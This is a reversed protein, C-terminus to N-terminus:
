AGHAPEMEARTQDAAGRVRSGNVNESVYRRIARRLEQSRTRDGQEAMRDIIEAVAPPVKVALTATPRDEVPETDPTFWTSRRFRGVQHSNGPIPGVQAGCRM